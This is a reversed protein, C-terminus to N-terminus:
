IIWMYIRTESRYCSSHIRLKKEDIKYNKEFSKINGNNYYSKTNMMIEILEKIKETDNLKSSLMYYLDKELKECDKVEDWNILVDSSSFVILETERPVLLGSYYSYKAPIFWEHKLALRDLITLAQEISIPIQPYLKNDNFGKIIGQNVCYLMSNYAWSSINESDKFNNLNGQTDITIENSKLLNIIM